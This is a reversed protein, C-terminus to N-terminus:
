SILFTRSNSFKFFFFILSIGMPLVFNLENLVYCVYMSKSWNCVASLLDLGQSVKFSHVLHGLFMVQSYFPKDLYVFLSPQLSMFTQASCFNKPLDKLEQFSM